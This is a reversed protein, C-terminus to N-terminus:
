DIGGTLCAFGGAEKRTEDVTTIEVIYAEAPTSEANPTDNPMLIAEDATITFNM